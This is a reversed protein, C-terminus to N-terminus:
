LSLSPLAFVVLGALFLTEAVMLTVPKWGVSVIDKLHTKLGIAAMAAILCAQSLDVGAAVVVAPLLDTSRVGVLVAFAVAFWPLLPPRAGAQAQGQGQTATERLMHQRALWSALLIVPLLLAVRLLKVLTALDGAEHSISYGAGVVQAVDHITAGIFFGASKPDMGLWTALLPYAIMALTSLTSVGIVTFM